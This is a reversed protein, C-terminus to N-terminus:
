GHTWNRVAYSSQTTHWFPISYTILSCSNQSPYLLTHLPNYLPQIFSTHYESIIYVHQFFSHPHYQSTYTHSCSPHLPWKPSWRCFLDNSHILIPSLHYTFSQIHPSPSDSFPFIPSKYWPQGRSLFKQSHVSWQLLWHIFLLPNKSTMTISAYTSM